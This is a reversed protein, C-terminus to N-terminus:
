VHPDKYMNYHGFTRKVPTEIFPTGDATLNVANLIDEDRYM